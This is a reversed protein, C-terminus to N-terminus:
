SGLYGSPARKHRFRQLLRLIQTTEYADVFPGVATVYVVRSYYKPELHCCPAGKASYPYPITVTHVYWVSVFFFRERVNPLHEGLCLSTPQAHKLLDVIDGVHRRPANDQNQMVKSSKKNEHYRVFEHYFVTWACLAYIRAPACHM